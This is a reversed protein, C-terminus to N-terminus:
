DIFELTFGFKISHAFALAFVFLFPWAFILFLWSLFLPFFYRRWSIFRFFINIKWAIQLNNARNAGLLNLSLHREGIYGVLAILIWRILAWRQGELADWLRKLSLIRLWIIKVRRVLANPWAAFPTYRLIIKVVYLDYLDWKIVSSSGQPLERSVEDEISIWRTPAVSTWYYTLETFVQHM